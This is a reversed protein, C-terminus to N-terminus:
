WLVLILILIKLLIFVFIYATSGVICFYAEALAGVNLFILISPLSLKLRFGFNGLSKLVRSM